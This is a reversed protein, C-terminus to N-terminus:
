VLCVCVTLPGCFAGLLPCPRGQVRQFALVRLRSGPPAAPSLVMRFILQFNVVGASCQINYRQLPFIRADGSDDGGTTVHYDVLVFAAPHTLLGAIM